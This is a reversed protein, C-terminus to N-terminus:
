LALRKKLQPNVYFTEIGKRLLWPVKLESLLEDARASVTKLLRRRVDEDLQSVLVDGTQPDRAPVPISPVNAPTYRIPGIDPPPQPSGAVRQPVPNRHDTLFAQAKQRGLNYDHRRLKLDFFGEFAFLGGGALESNTATIGYINMEDKLNLEAATELVLISDIWAQETAQNLTLLEASEKAFQKRLRARAENQSDDRIGPPPPPNTQFLGPLLVDAARQLVAPDVLGNM